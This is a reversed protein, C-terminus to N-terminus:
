KMNKGEKINQLKMHKRELKREKEETCDIQKLEDLYHRPLGSL